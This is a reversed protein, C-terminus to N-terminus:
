QRWTRRAARIEDELFPFRGAYNASLLALTQQHLLPDSSSYRGYEVFFEFSRRVLAEREAEPARAALEYYGRALMMASVRDPALRYATRYHELQREPPAGELASLRGRLYHLRALHLQDPTRYPGPRRGLARDRELGRAIAARARALWPARLDPDAEREARKLHSKALAQLSLLSPEDLRAEHRWLSDNDRWVTQQRLTQMGSGVAFALAASAVAVRTAAGCRARLELLLSAGVALVCFSALYVYRDASWIGIYVLNLHPLLLAFFALPYFALDRRRLCCYLTAAGVLVALAGSALLEPTTLAIEVQPWRYFMSLQTPWVLRKLYLGLVLPTFKALNALHAPDFPGPGRWGIVGYERLIAHYWAFVFGALLAHPAIRPLAERAARALGLPEAPSRQGKLHEHLVRHAGLVLFFSVASMKSLLALTSCLLGALYLQRRARRDCRELELSQALLALLMWFAVLVDKRGMIWCVPEAHVPLLAFALAVPLALALRRTAHLLFLFLLAVNSANLLVNGLHYGLPNEFGFLRADIAWTVDRLLLPEERPFYGVLIEHLSAPLSSEDYLNPHALLVARDDFNVFDFGLARAYLAFSLLWLGLCLAANRTRSGPM